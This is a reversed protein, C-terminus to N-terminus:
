PPASFDYISDKIPGAIIQNTVTPLGDNSVQGEWLGGNYLFLFLGAKIWRIGSIENNPTYAPLAPANILLHPPDGEKAYFYTSKSGAPANAPPMTILFHSSDPSWCKFDLQNVPSSAYVHDSNPGCIVHLDRLDHNDVQHAVCNGDPSINVVDNPSGAFDFKAPSYTGAAIEPVKERDVNEYVLRGSFVNGDCKPAVLYFGSSDGKWQVQPSGRIGFACGDAFDFVRQPQEDGECYLDLQNPRTITLCAGDPSFTYKGGLGPGIPRVPLQTSLDIKFLDQDGFEQSVSVLAYIAQNKPSFDFQVIKASGGTLSALYDSSIVTKPVDTSRTDYLLLENNQLYAVWQCNPSVKVQTISGPTGIPRANGDGNKLYLLSQGSNDQLYAVTLAPCPIATPMATAQDTQNSPAADALSDCATAFVVLIMAIFLKRIDVLNDGVFDIAVLGQVQRPLSTGL